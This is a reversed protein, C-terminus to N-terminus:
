GYYTRDDDNIFWVDCFHTIFISTDFVELIKRENRLDMIGAFQEGTQEFFMTADTRKLFEENNTSGIFHYDDDLYADYTKVDANLYATLWTDYVQWVETEQTVTLKM